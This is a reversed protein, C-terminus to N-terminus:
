AQYDSVSLSLCWFVPHFLINNSYLCGHCSGVHIRTQTAGQPLIFIIELDRLCVATWWSAGFSVAASSFPGGCRSSVLIQSGYVPPSDPIWEPVQKFHSRQLHQSRDCFDLLGLSHTPDIHRPSFEETLPRPLKTALLNM